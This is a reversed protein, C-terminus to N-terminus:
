VKLGCLFIWATLFILISAVLAAVWWPHVSHELQGVSVAFLAIDLVYVLLVALLVKMGNKKGKLVKEEM